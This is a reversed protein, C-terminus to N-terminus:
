RKCCQVVHSGQGGSVEGRGERCTCLPDPLAWIDTSTSCTSPRASPTSPQHMSDLQVLEWEQRTPLWTSATMVLLQNKSPRHIDQVDLEMPDTCHLLCLVTSPSGPIYHTHTHTHRHTHACTHTHTHTQTHKQKQKIQGQGWAVCGYICGCTDSSDPLWYNLM